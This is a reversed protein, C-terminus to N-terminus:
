KRGKLDKFYKHHNFALINISDLPTKLACLHSIVFVVYHPFHVPASPLCPKQM